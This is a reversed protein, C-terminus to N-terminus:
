REEDCCEVGGRLCTAKPSIILLALQYVLYWATLM